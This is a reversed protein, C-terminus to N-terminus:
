GPSIAGQENPEIAAKRANKVGIIKLGSFRVECRLSKLREPLPFEARQHGVAISLSTRSGIRPILKLVREPTRRMDVTLKQLESRRRGTSLRSTCPVSALDGTAFMSFRGACGRQRSRTSQDRQTGVIAKSCSKANRIRPWPRRCSNHNATVRCGVASHNARWIVLANGHSRAGVYITRSLSRAKAAYECAADLRHANPVPRM